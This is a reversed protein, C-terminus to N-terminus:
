RFDCQVQKHVHIFGWWDHREHSSITYAMRREGVCVKREVMVGFDINLAECIGGSSFNPLANGLKDQESFERNREQGSM